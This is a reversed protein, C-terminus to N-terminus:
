EKHGSELNGSIFVQIALLSPPTPPIEKASGEFFM